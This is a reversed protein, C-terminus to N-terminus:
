PRHSRVPPELDGPNELLQMLSGLSVEWVYVAKVRQIGAAGECAALQSRKVVGCSLFQAGPRNGREGGPPGGGSFPGVQDPIVHRCYRM